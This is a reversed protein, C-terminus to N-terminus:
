ENQRVEKSKKRLSDYKRKLRDEEFEFSEQVPKEAVGSRSAKRATSDEHVDDSPKLDTTGLTDGKLPTSPYEGSGKPSQVQATRLTLIAAILLIVATIFGLINRWFRAAM